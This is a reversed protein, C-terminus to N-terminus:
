PKYGNDDKPPAPVPGFAASSPPAGGDREEEIEALARALTAVLEAVAETPQAAAYQAREAHRQYGDAATSAAAIEALLDDLAPPLYACATVEADLSDAPNAGADVWARYALYDSAASAVAKANQPTDQNQM